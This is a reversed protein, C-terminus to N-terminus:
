QYTLREPPNCLRKAPKIGLEEQYQKLEIQYNFHPNVIPRLAKVESTAKKASWNNTAMMYAIVCSASRSVGQECHVLVCNKGDVFQNIKGFFDSLGPTGDATKIQIYNFQKPYHCAVNPTVNVIASIGLQKLAPLDNAGVKNGLYLKGPIIESINSSANISAGGKQPSFFSAKRKM